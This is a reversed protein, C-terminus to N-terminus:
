PFNYAERKEPVVLIFLNQELVLRRIATTQGESNIKVVQHPFRSTPIDYVSSMPRTLVHQM